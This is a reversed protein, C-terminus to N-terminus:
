QVGLSGQLHLVRHGGRDLHQFAEVLQALFLQLLEDLVVAKGHIQAVDLEALFVEAGFLAVRGDGLDLHDVGVPRIVAAVGGEAGNQVIHLDVIGHHLGGKVAVHGHAGVEATLVLGAAHHVHGGDTGLLQLLLADQLVEVLGVLDVGAGDLDLAVDVALILVPQEQELILGM